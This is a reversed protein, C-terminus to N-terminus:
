KYRSKINKLEYELTNILEEKTNKNTRNEIMEQILDEVPKDPKKFTRIEMLPIYTETLIIERLCENIKNKLMSRYECCNRSLYDCSAILESNPKEKISEERKKNEFYSLKQIEVILRDIADAFTNLNPITNNFEKRLRRVVRMCSLDLETDNMDFKMTNIRSCLFRLNGKVYGKYPIIRDLSIGDIKHGENIKLNLPIGTIACKGEQNNWLDILYQTNINIPLKKKKCFRVKDKYLLLCRKEINEYYNKTTILIKEKNIKRYKKIKDKNKLRYKIRSIKVKEKNRERYRKSSKNKDEALKYSM